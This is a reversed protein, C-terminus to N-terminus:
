VITGVQREFVVGRNGFQRIGEARLGPASKALYAEFVARTPFVYQTMIRVHGPGPPPQEIRVIMGSHAGGQVVHDVHGDELWAVYDRATPEDPLTATVMYCIREM